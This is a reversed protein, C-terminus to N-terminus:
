PNHMAFKLNLVFFDSSISLNLSRTALKTLDLNPPCYPFPLLPALHSIDVCIVISRYFVHMFQLCVQCYRSDISYLGVSSFVTNCGEHRQDSFTLTCSISPHEPIEVQDTSIASAGM